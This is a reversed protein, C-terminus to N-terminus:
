LGGAAYYPTVTPCVALDNNSQERRRVGTERSGFVRGGIKLRRANKLSKISFVPERRLSRVQKKRYPM